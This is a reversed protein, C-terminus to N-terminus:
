RRGDTGPGPGQSRLFGHMAAAIGIAERARDHATAYRAAAHLDLREANMWAIAQERNVLDPTVPESNPATDVRRGTFRKTVPLHLLVEPVAPRAGYGAAVV